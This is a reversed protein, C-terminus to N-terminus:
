VQNKVERKRQWIPPISEAGEQWGEHPSIASAKAHCQPTVPPTKASAKAVMPLLTFSVEYSKLADELKEDLAL